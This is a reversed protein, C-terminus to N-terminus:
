VSRMQSITSIILGVYVIAKKPNHLFKKIEVINASIRRTKEVIDEIEERQAKRYLRYNQRRLKYLLDKAEELNNKELAKELDIAFSETAKRMDLLSEEKVIEFSEKRLRTLMQIHNPYSFVGQESFFSVVPQWGRDECAKEYYKMVKTYKMKALKRLTLDKNAYRIMHYVHLGIGYSYDNIVLRVISSVESFIKETLDETICRQLKLSRIFGSYLSSIKKNMEKALHYAEAYTSRISNKSFDIKRTISREAYTAIGEALIHKLIDLVGVRLYSWYCALNRNGEFLSCTLEMRFRAKQIRYMNKNIIKYNDASRLDWLHTIEHVLVRQLDEYTLRIIRDFVEAKESDPLSSLEGYKKQMIKYRHSYIWDLYIYVRNKGEEVVEEPVVWAAAGKKKLAEETGEVMGARFKKNTVFVIEINRFSSSLKFNLTWIILSEFFNLGSIKNFGLYNVLYDEKYEKLFSVFTMAVGSSEKCILEM